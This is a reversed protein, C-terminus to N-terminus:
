ITFVGNSDKATSNLYGDIKPFIGGLLCNIKPLLIGSM